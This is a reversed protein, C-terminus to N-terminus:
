QQQWMMPELFTFTPTFIIGSLVINMAEAVDADLSLSIV